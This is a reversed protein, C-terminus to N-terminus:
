CNKNTFKAEVSDRVGAKSGGRDEGPKGLLEDRGRASMQRGVESIGKRGGKGEGPVPAGRGAEAGLDRPSRREKKEFQKIQKLIV